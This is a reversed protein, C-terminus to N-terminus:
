SGLEESKEVMAHVAQIISKSFDDELLSLVGSATVGGPSSVQDVLNWPTTHAEQVTKGSGLVAQSAIKTAKDKSMGYQVATRALIDIYMFTLAPSSGAIATFIGLQDEEIEVVEGVAEFIQRALKLNYPSLQDNKLFATMSASVQANLNPMVRLMQNRSLYQDFLENQVGAAISVFFTHGQRTDLEKLVNELLHPKVALIVVQSRDVVEQNTKVQTIHFEKGINEQAHPNIDSFILETPSTIKKRIIGRAIAKAMNGYGIFGIQLYGSGEKKYQIMDM